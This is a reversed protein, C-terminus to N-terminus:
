LQALRMKMNHTYADILGGEAAEDDDKESDKKRKFLGIFGSSSETRAKKKEETHSGENAGFVNPESAFTVTNRAERQENNDFEGILSSQMATPSAETQARRIALDGVMDGNEDQARRWM